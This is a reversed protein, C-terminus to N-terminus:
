PSPSTPQTQVLLTTIDKSALRSMINYVIAQRMQDYLTNAENSGALIQGAKITLTRTETVIQPPILAKGQPDAVQFAVTLVLNYQRTQQTGSIGLLVQSTSESLIVLVSTADERKEVLHIGSIKLFEKLYHALQGYPDKTELCLEHISPALPITGRFHFGCSSLSLFMIFLILKRFIGSHGRKKFFGYYLNKLTVNM